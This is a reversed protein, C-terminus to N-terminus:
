RIELPSPTEFHAAGFRANPAEVGGRRVSWAILRQIAETALNRYYSARQEDGEYGELIYALALAMLADEHFSVPINIAAETTAITLTTPYPDYYVVLSQGVPVPGNLRLQPGFMQYHTPPNSPKSMAIDGPNAHILEVFPGTAYNASDCVLVNHIREYTTAPFFDNVGDGATTTNATGTLSPIRSCISRQARNLARLIVAQDLTYDLGSDDAITQALEAVTPM